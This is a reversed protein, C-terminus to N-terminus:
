GVRGAASGGTARLVAIADGAYVLGSNPNDVKYTKGNVNVLVRVASVPKIVTGVRVNDHEADLNKMAAVILAGTSIQSKRPVIQASPKTAVATTRMLSASLSHSVSTVTYGNLNQGVEIRSTLSTEVTMEDILMSSKKKFGAYDIARRYLWNYLAEQTVINNPIPIDPLTEQREYVGLHADWQEAYEVEASIIKIGEEMEPLEPEENGTEGGDRVLVIRAEFAEPDFINPPTLVQLYPRYRSTLSYTRNGKRRYVTKERTDQVLENEGFAPFTFNYPQSSPGIVTAYYKGRAAAKNDVTMTGSGDAYREIDTTKKAVTLLRLEYDTGALNMEWAWNKTTEVQYIRYASIDSNFYPVTKVTETENYRNGGQQFKEEILEREESTYKLCINSVEDWTWTETKSWGSGNSKRYLMRDGQFTETISVGSASFTVTEAVGPLEKEASGTVVIRNYYGDYNVGERITRDSIMDDSLTFQSTNFTYHGDKTYHYQRNYAACWDDVEAKDAFGSPFGDPLDDFVVENYLGGSLPDILDMRYGAGLDSRTILTVYGIFFVDGPITTTYADAVASRNGSKGGAFLAYNGVTAAALYYRAESLEDPTTRTLATDYADVTALGIDNIKPTGGAFLAFGGVTAAALDHRAESLPTPTTRTLAADYADVAALGIGNSDYGGGFIAINGVTTAASESRAVSLPTITTRTLAVDYADVAAYSIYGAGFIAYGGVTTAAVDGGRTLKAPTSRTLSEDYADVTTGDGGAFLAYKGV